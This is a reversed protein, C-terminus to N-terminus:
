FTSSDKGLALYRALFVIISSLITYTVGIALCQSRLSLGCLGRHIVIRGAELM